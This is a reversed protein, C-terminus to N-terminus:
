KRTKLQMVCMKTKQGVGVRTMRLAKPATLGDLEYVLSKFVPSIVNVSFDYEKGEIEIRFVNQLGFNGQRERPIVPCLKFPTEGEEFSYFDKYGKEKMRAQKRKELEAKQKQVYEQLEKKGMKPLMETQQQKLFIECRNCCNPMYDWKGNGM